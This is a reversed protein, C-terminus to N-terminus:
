CSRPASSAPWAPGPCPTTTPTTAPSSWTSAPRARTPATPSPPRTDDSLAGSLREVRPAAPENVTLTFVKTADTSVANSAWVTITSAGAETPTGSITATGDGNDTFALGAPLSGKTVMLMPRTWGTTEIKASYAKGATAAPLSETAITVQKSDVAFTLKLTASGGGNSVTLDAAYTGPQGATGSIVVKDKTSALDIAIGSGEFQSRDYSLSAAKGGTLALEESVEAGEMKEFFYAGGNHFVPAPESVVLVFEKDSTQFGNDAHVTFTYSGAATATGSLV